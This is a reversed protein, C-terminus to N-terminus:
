LLTELVPLAKEIAASAQADMDSGSGYNPVFGAETARAIFDTNTLVTEVANQFTEVAASPVDKNYFFGAMNNTEYGAYGLDELTPVDKLSAVTSKCGLNIVGHCDPRALLDAEGYVCANVEGGMVATYCDATGGTYPVSVAELGEGIIRGRLM